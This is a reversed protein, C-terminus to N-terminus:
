LRWRAGLGYVEGRGLIAANANPSFVSTFYIPREDFVNRGFAYLTLANHQWALQLDTITYSDIEVTNAIDAMRAGVHAVDVSFILENSAVPHKYDIGLGATLRPSNPVRNGDVAGTTGTPDANVMKTRTAGVVGELTLRPSVNAQLELEVGYSEYDQNDFFVEFTTADFALAQGDEVENFFAAGMVTLKNGLFRAKSGIEYTWVTSPRFPPTDLGSSANLSFREFGGSAYGRSISAYTVADRHWRYDMAARGTVYDDEVRDAQTFSPVTGPFGNSVYTTDFDQTDRAIRLGASLRLREAAQFAIDGFVASTKSDITTDYTGNLGPYYDSQQERDMEYDSQFYALGIVWDTRSGKAANLRIEQSFVQEGEFGRSVDRSPDAFFEPSLEVGFDANFASFLFSDTNDTNITIGIDQYGTTSTLTFQDFEREIALTVQDMERREVPETDDGATPFDPSEVLVFQPNRRDDEERSVTLKASLPGEPMLGLSLRGATVEASGIDSNTFVNPIDGDVNQYRFAFRAALTQEVLWGGAAADLLQSHLTGLEAGLRLDRAGDAQRPVLNIAGGLANRGFLTGQPGRFVEVREVDYPTQSFGAGTTPVGDVSYGITNDHTNLPSGLPVIGRVSAFNYGPSGYDIFNFNPARQAIDLGPDLSGSALDEGDVVSAAVPADFALEERKRANITVQGVDFVEADVESETDAHSVPLSVLLALFLMVVPMVKV